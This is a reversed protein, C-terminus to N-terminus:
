LFALHHWDCQSGWTSKIMDLKLTKGNVAKMCKNACDERTEFNNENGRCGGYTFLECDGSKANYYYRQKIAMCPGSVKPLNCTTPM